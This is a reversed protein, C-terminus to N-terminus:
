GEPDQNDPSTPTTAGGNHVGGTPPTTTGGGTQGGGETTGGTPPTVTGGGTQGGGETTGGTPPTVTGGGTQGGGETTGGEPTTGTGGETPPTVTGGEPPTGTGGETPPTPYPLGTEPDIAGPLMEEPTVPEIVHGPCTEKPADGKYFNGTATECGAGPLLGTKTCYSVKSFGSEPTPFSKDPLGEHIKFMVKKWLNTAPNSSLGSLSYNQDYGFWTAGVYYPTYGCFWRDRNATTTGTKGATAMGSVKASSATGGARTVGQLTENMYYTTKENEFAHIAEPAENSLLINDNADLVKSYTFPKVFDGNNVFIGYAGAMQRVTVGDTLGGLGLAALGIDSVVKGNTLTRNSVISSEMGVKETMFKYAAEPTLMDLTKVAITNVSRAVADKLIISGTYKYNDNRPWPKGNLEQFPEDVMGTYPTILGADMAPGYTSIPKLSSGPQRKSEARNLLRSGTKEGRGGVIGVIAGGPKMVVMASQPQEGNKSIKPFNDDNTYVDDMVGQVKQDITAYIKLGGTRVIQEALQESYGKQEKLDRVLDNIITDTFYTYPALLNLEDAPREYKLEQVKAASYESQTIMGLELMKSLIVEQRAKTNEPNRFPNYKTPANTIGAIAACEALTLQSVDKNFYTHAAAQVGCASNGFPITNMYMELIRDKDGDVDNELALASFIEKIKRRISYDKDNTVNKILQQTITSGGYAKDGGGVWKLAAGFTRKWDVGKHTYFREDEIAVFAQGMYAPIDEYDVWIRNEGSEHLKEYEVFEGTAPDQAYIITTLNLNITSLDLAEISPNIYSHIYWALALGCIAATTICILVLSLLTTRVIHRKKKKKTALHFGGKEASKETQGATEPM